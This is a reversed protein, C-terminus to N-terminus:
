YNQYSSSNVAIGSIFWRSPEERRSRELSFPSDAVFERFLEVLVSPHNTQESWYGEHDGRKM